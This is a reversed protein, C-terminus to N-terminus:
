GARVARAHAAGALREDGMPVLLLPRLQLAQERLHGVVLSDHRGRRAPDVQLGERRRLVVGALEAAGFYPEVDAGGLVCGCRLPLGPTVHHREGAAVNVDAGDWHEIVVLREAEDHEDVVQAEHLPPFRRGPAEQQQGETQEGGGGRQHGHDRCPEGPAPPAVLQAAEQTAPRVAGLELRDQPVDAIEDIPDDRLLLGIAFSAGPSGLPQLVRQVAVKVALLHHDDGVALGVNVLPHLVAADRDEM